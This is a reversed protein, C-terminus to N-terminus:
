RPLAPVTIKEGEGYLSFAMRGRNDKRTSGMQARIPAAVSDPAGLGGGAYHADIAALLPTPQGAANLLAFGWHPDGPPQAPQLNELALVGAWPWEAQARDYAALTDAIQEETSTQGWPSTQTNWGFNGGWLLKRADGNRVMVQRLLTFRSFNM